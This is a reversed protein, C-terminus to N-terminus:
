LVQETESYVIDWSPLPPNKNKGHNQSEGHGNANGHVRSHCKGITAMLILM